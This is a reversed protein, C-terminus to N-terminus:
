EDDISFQCSSLSSLSSSLDDPDDMAQQGDELNFVRRGSLHHEYTKRGAEDEVIWWSNLPLPEEVISRHEPNISMMALAWIALNVTLKGHGHAAWPISKYKLRYKDDVKTVCVAAVERATIIYGYRVDSRVCYNALQSFGARELDGAARSRGNLGAQSSSWEHCNKTKGWVLPVRENNQRM